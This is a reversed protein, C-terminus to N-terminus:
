CNGPNTKVVLFAAFFIACYYVSVWTPGKLLGKMFLLRMKPSGSGERGGSKWHLSMKAAGGREVVFIVVDFGVVAFLVVFFVIMVFVVLVFVVM